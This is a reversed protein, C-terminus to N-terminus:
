NISSREVIIRGSMSDHTMILVSFAVQVRSFLAFRLFYNFFSPIANNPALARNHRRRFPVSVPVLGRFVAGRARILINIALASTFRTM